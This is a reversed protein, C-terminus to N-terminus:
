PMMYGGGMMWGGWRQMHTAIWHHNHSRYAHVDIRSGSHMYGWGCDDWYTQHGTYIQVYQGAMTHMRFWHHARNASTIRGRFRHTYTATHASALSVPGATLMGHHTNGLRGANAGIVGAALVLGAVVTVALTRRTATM